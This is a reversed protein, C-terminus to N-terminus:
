HGPKLWGKKISNESVADWATVVREVLRKHKELASLLQLKLLRECLPVHGSSGVVGLEYPLKQKLPGMVGVDLLQLDSTTNKLLPVVM